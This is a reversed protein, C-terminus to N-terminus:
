GEAGQGSHRVQEGRDNELDNWAFPVIELVQATCQPSRPTLRLQRPALALEGDDRDHVVHGFPITRPDFQKGVWRPTPDDREKRQPRPSRRAHGLLDPQAPGRGSSLEVQELVRPQDSRPSRRGISADHQVADLTPLM